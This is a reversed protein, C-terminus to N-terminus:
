DEYPTRGDEFTKEKFKIFLKIHETLDSDSPSLLDNGPPSL